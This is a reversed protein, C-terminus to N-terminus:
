GLVILPLIKIFTSSRLVFSCIDQARWFVIRIVLNLEILKFTKPKDSSIRAQKRIQFKTAPHYKLVLM